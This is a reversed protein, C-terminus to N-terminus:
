IPSLEARVPARRKEPPPTVSTLMVYLLLCAFELEAYGLVSHFGKAFPLTFTASDGGYMHLCVLSAILPLRAHRVTNGFLGHARPMTGANEAIRESSAWDRLSAVALRVVMICPVIRIVDYNPFAATLEMLMKLFWCSYATANLTATIISKRLDYKRMIGHVMRDVAKQILSDFFLLVGLPTPIKM